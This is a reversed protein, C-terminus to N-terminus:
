PTEMVSAQMPHSSVSVKSRDSDVLVRETWFHHEWTEVVENEADVVQVRYTLIRQDFFNYALTKKTEKIPCIIVEESHDWFRVTLIMRLQRDILVPPFRWAILLRQGEPPDEQRPDPTGVHSSALFNRDVWEQQV